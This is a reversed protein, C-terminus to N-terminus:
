LLQIIDDKAGLLVWFSWSKALLLFLVGNITFANDKAVPKPSSKTISVPSIGGVTILMNTITKSLLLRPSKQESSLRLLWLNPFFLNTPM